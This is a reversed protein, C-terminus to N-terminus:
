GKKHLDLARTLMCDPANEEPCELGNVRSLACLKNRRVTAIQTRVFCDSEVVYEHGSKFLELMKPINIGVSGSLPFLTM